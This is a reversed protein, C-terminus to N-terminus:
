AVKKNYKSIIYLQELQSLFERVELSWKINNKERIVKNIFKQKDFTTMLGPNDSIGVLNSITQVTEFTWANWSPARSSIKLTKVFDKYAGWFTKYKATKLKDCKLMCRLSIKRIYWLAEELSNIKESFNSELQTEIPKLQPKSCAIHTYDIRGLPKEIM